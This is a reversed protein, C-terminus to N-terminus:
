LPKLGAVNNWSFPPSKVKTGSVCGFNFEVLINNLNFFRTQINELLVIKLQHIVKEFYKTPRM